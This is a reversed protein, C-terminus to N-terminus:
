DNLWLDFDDDFAQLEALNVRERIALVEKAAADEEKELRPKIRHLAKTQELATSATLTRAPMNTREKQNEISGEIARLMAEVRLDGLSHVLGELGKVVAQTKLDPPAAVDSPGKKRSSAPHEKSTRQSM